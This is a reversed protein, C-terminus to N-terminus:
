KIRRYLEKILEKIDTYQNIEYGSELVYKTFSVIQPMDIYRYLNYDYFVQRDGRIKVEGKHIVYVNDVLQFLFPIRGNFILITKHFKNKLKLFLKKFYEQERATFGYDFDDLIIMKPNFSLTAALSVKKKETFSLTDIERELLSFSLGVIKLSNKVHEEVDGEYEQTKITSVIYEKVTKNKLSTIDEVLGVAKDIGNYCNIHNTKRIKVGNMVLEGLNPRKKLLFLDKLCSIDKGIFSVISGEPITLSLEKVIEKSFLKNKFIYSMHNFIIEM